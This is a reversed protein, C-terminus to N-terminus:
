RETEHGCHICKFNDKYTGSSTFHYTHKCKDQIEKKRNEGIEILKHFIEIQDDILKIERNEFDEFPKYREYTPIIDSLPKFHELFYERSLNHNHNNLENKEFVYFEEDKLDKDILAKYVRNKIFAISGNSMLFDKTCIFNEM